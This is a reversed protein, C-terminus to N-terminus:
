MEVKKYFLKVLLDYLKEDDVHYEDHKEGAIVEGPVKVINPQSEYTTLKDVEGASLDTVMYPDADKLLRKYLNPDQKLREPLQVAAAEIVQRQREMRENNSGTVTTDRYRVYKEALSGKLLITEGKRFSPDIETYDEPVTIEIGGIADSVVAIGDINLSFFSQVPIGYLLESVKEKTLLCSKKAGDGYAYQTAIQAQDTAIQEGAMDYVDVDIMSDRSIQLTQITKQETDLIFLMLVDAQGGRGAYDKVEVAETNDVGMFLITKLATNYRYKQGQYTITEFGAEEELQVDEELAEKQLFSRLLLGSVIAVVCFVASVIVIRQKKKM